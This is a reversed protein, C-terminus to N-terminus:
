KTWSSAEKSTVVEKARKRFVNLNCLSPALLGAPLLNWDKITRNVFSEKGVKTRQKRNRIKKGHDDGSLECSNVL